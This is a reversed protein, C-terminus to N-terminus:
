SFQYVSTKKQKHIKSFVANQVYDQLLFRYKVKSKKIEQFASKWNDFGSLTQKWQEDIREDRISPYFWSKEFKKYGRRAIEISAAVMDPTTENGYIVNGIFSTYCPNVEVLSFNCLLSLSKIKNVFLNRKWVNNCLRNFYKGNGKNSSKITLDEVVVKDCKWYDVLNCINHAIQITEHNLKNTLYKSKKDISSKGSKTTLKSLDFVRKDLIKFQDNEDFELVSIGIYNPNMDIGLVRNKKLDKFNCDTIKSEDFTLYVDSKTLSVTVSIQKNDILEQLRILNNKIKKHPVKYKLTQHNTRSLKFTIKNEEFDFDFLRNGKHLQEGQITIPLMRNEKFEDKSIYKKLYQKLNYKGGFIIKTQKHKQFLQQGVKIGCQVFWCNLGGVKDKLYARIEKETFCDQFRNFSIRVVNNFSRQEKLIDIENELKLKVTTM